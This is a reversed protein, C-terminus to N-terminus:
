SILIAGRRSLWFNRRFAVLERFTAAETTKGNKGSLSQFAVVGADGHGCLPEHWEVTAAM